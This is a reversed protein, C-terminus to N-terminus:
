VERVCKNHVAFGPVDSANEKQVVRLICQQPAVTSGSVCSGGSCNDSRMREYFVVSETFPVWKHTKVNVQNHIKWIARVLHYRSTFTRDNISSLSEEFNRRCASCPLTKSLLSFWARYVEKDKKTPFVPFDHATLHLHLWTPPGFISSVFGRNSSSIMTINNNKKKILNQRRALSTTFNCNDTCHFIGVDSSCCAELSQSSRFEHYWM